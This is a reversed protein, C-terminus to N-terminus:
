RSLAPATPSFGRAEGGSTAEAAVVVGAFEAAPAAQPWVAPLSGWLARVRVLQGNLLHPEVEVAAWGARRAM